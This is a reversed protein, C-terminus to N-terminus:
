HLTKLYYYIIIPSLHPYPTTFLHGSTALLGSILLGVKLGLQPFFAESLKTIELLFIQLRLFM